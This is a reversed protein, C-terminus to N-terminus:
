AMLDVDRAAEAPSLAVEIVGFQGGLPDRQAAAEGSALTTGLLALGLALGKAM